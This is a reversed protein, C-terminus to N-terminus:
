MKGLTPLIISYFSTPLLLWTIKSVFSFKGLKLKPGPWRCRNDMLNSPLIDLREWNKKGQGKFLTRLDSIFSGVPHYTGVLAMEKLPFGALRSVVEVAYDKFFFFFIWNNWCKDLLHVILVASAPLTRNQWMIKVTVYFCPVKPSHVPTKISLTKVPPLTWAGLIM